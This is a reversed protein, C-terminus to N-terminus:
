YIQPPLYVKIVLLLAMFRVVFSHWKHTMSGTQRPQKLAQSRRAYDSDGIFPTNTMHFLSLLANPYLHSVYSSALASAPFATLSASDKGGGINDTNRSLVSFPTGINKVATKALDPRAWSRGVARLPQGLGRILRNGNGGGAELLSVLLCFLVLSLM